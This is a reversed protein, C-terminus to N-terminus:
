YQINLSWEVLFGFEFINSLFHRSHKLVGALDRNGDTSRYAGTDASQIYVYNKKHM